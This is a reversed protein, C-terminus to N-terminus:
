VNPPLLRAFSEFFLFLSLLFAPVGASYAPIRRWYHGVVRTLIGATATALAWALAPWRAAPDGSLGAEFGAASDRAADASPATPEAPPSVLGAVIILRERASFEPHCTTLTLRNDGQPELVESQGPKVVIAERVEYRFEGKATTVLVADGAALEDLRNFPAGYTTRHGAIAANGPEGPMPTAPYHGPGAKLENTGVGEVVAKDLGIKPIELLGVAGGPVPRIAELANGDQIESKLRDQARAEAVSTGFLQYAVFALVLAGSWILATGTVGLATRVSTPNM